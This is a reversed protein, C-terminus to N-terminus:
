WADAHKAHPLISFPVICSRLICVYPLFHLHTHMLRSPAFRVLRFFPQLSLDMSLLALPLVIFCDQANSSSDSKRSATTNTSRLLLPHHYSSHLLSTWSLKHRVCGDLGLTSVTILQQNGSTRLLSFHVWGWRWTFALQIHHPPGPSGSPLGRM